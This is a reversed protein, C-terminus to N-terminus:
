MEAAMYKWATLSHFQGIRGARTSDTNRTAGAMPSTSSRNMKRLRRVALATDFSTTAMPRLTASGAM